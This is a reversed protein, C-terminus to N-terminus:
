GGQNLPAVAKPEEDRRPDRQPPRLADGTAELLLAVALREISGHRYMYTTMSIQRQRRYEGDGGRGYAASRPLSLPLCHYPFTLLLLGVRPRTRNRSRDRLCRGRLSFIGYTSAVYARALVPLLYFSFVVLLFHGVHQFLILGLVV